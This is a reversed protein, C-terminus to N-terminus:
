LLIAKIPLLTIEPLAVATTTQVPSRVKNPEMADAIAPSATSVLKVLPTFATEHTRIRNISTMTGSTNKILPIVFPSQSSAKRNPIETATPSVGSISGIITVVQRAFPATEMLLFCVITLFRFEIWFKPAM